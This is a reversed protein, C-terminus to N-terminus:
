EEVESVWFEIRRIAEKFGGIRGDCWDSIHPTKVKQEELQEISLKFGEILRDIAFENIQKM